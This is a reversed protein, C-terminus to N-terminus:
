ISDQLHCKEIHNHYYQVSLPEDRHGSEARGDTENETDYWMVMVSVIVWREGEM